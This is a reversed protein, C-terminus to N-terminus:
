QNYSVCVHVENIGFGHHMRETCLERSYVMCVQSTKLKDKKKILTLFSIVNFSNFTENIEGIIVFRRENHGKSRTETNIFIRSNPSLNLQICSDVTPFLRM